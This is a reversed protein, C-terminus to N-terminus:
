HWYGGVGAHEPGRPHTQSPQAGRGVCAGSFSIPSNSDPLYFKNVILGEVSADMQASLVLATKAVPTQGVLAELSIRTNLPLGPPLKFMGPVVPQLNQGNCLLTEGGKGGILLVSPEAFPFYRNGASSRIGGVLQLRISRPLSLVPFLHAVGDDSQVHAVSFLRWQDPLGADLNLEKAGKCESHLWPVVAPAAKPGFAIHCASGSPLTQTEVLGPLGDDSGPIFVRVSRGSLHITWGLNKEVFSAGKEWDLKSADMLFEGVHFESSWGDSFEECVVNDNGAASLLLPGDPYERNLRTRISSVAIGAIRDISPFCIRAPAVVRSPNEGSPEALSGNWESLEDLAQELLVTILEAEEANNLFSITRARLQNAGYVRIADALQEPRPPTRPDFGARAFVSWLARREQETLVTQSVPLGVHIWKGVLNSTSRFVGLEGQRDHTSWHELDDWLELMRHFSPPTGQEGDDLLTHLRPYYAYSRFDGDLGAALVFLSLYGIYPPYPFGRSRWGECTQLAKQCLGSRTAWPPGVKMASVFDSVHEGNAQGVQDILDASTYLYVAHGAKDPTFFSNALGDNWGHFGLREQKSPPM